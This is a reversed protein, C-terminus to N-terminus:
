PGRRLMALAISALLVILLALGVRGLTPIELVSQQIVVTAAAVAPTPDDSDSVASADNVVVTGPPGAVTGTVNCVVSANVPLNGAAWTLTGNPPGGAPPGAACDDSTWSFEAPLNDTVIVNDAPDPGSNSATLTYTLSGGPPVTGAGADKTLTLDSVAGVSLLVNDLEFFGPGSFMESVTWVFNVRVNQGGFPTLDVTSSLPGTDTELTGTAATLILDTQMPAGGGSPEVHVEFTRDMTAGFTQLDWAGRYDFELTLAGMGPLAVDQGLEITDPGAGDFGTLSSVAGQTPASTFFGYGIYSPGAVTLPIFPSAIDDVVWSTFDGTEFSCNAILNPEATCDHMSAVSEHPLDQVLQAEYPPQAWAVPLALFSAAVFALLHAIQRRDLM